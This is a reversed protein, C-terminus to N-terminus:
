IMEYLKPLYDLNFITDVIGSKYNNNNNNNDSFYRGRQSIKNIFMKKKKNFRFERSYRNDKEYADQFSYLSYFLRVSNYIKYRNSHIIESQTYKIYSIGFMRNYIMMEM